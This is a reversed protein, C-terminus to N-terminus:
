GQDIVGRRPTPDKYPYSMLDGYMGDNGQPSLIQSTLQAADGLTELEPASYPQKKMM